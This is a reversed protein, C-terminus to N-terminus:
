GACGGDSTTHCHEKDRSLCDSDAHYEKFSKKKEQLSSYLRKPTDDSISSVTVNKEQWHLVHCRHLAVQLAVLLALYNASM